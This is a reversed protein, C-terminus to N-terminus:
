DVVRPLEARSVRPKLIKRENSLNDVLSPNIGGDGAALSEHVRLALQDAGTPLWTGPHDSVSVFHEIWLAVEDNTVESLDLISAGAAPQTVGTLPRTSTVVYPGPGDLEQSKLMTEARTVDYHEAFWNADDPTDLPPERDVPVYTINREEINLSIENVVQPHRLYARMLVQGRTDWPQRRFLIYSYAGYGQRETDGRPLTDRVVSSSLLLGVPFMAAGPVCDALLVNMGLLVWALLSKM